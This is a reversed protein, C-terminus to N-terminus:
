FAHHAVKVASFALLALLALNIQLVDRTPNRGQGALQYRESNRKCIRSKGCDLTSRRVQSSAVRQSILVWCHGRSSTGRRQGASRRTCSPRPRPRFHKPKSVLGPSRHRNQSKFRSSGVIPAVERGALWAGARGNDLRDLLHRKGGTRAHPGRFGRAIM